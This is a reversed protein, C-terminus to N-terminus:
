TRILGRMPPAMASGPFVCDLAAADLGLHQALLGKAVSRVDATPRLDRNEFLRQQALGPWDGAVRGGAVAGGIVFAVTGTGHDTGLTGNMRVTRGFETVLLVATRSWADGLGAKLAALGQDLPKLAAALRQPQHAHTDWGEAELAALRPGDPAALLRGAAAALAPFAMRNPPQAMGALVAETFGRERLGVAIAPGTLPDPQHMAALQAYFDPDPRQVFPPLWTGVPTPGRLLVPPVVAVSLAAETDPNAPILGAVRNLWGSRSRDSGAVAHVPLAEGLAYMDHLGPLAPHLGFFGGLDLLGGPQGPPPLVLPARLAALDPDGYPTVAALGDLAGRLIVVVLRRDTPASALALSARGLTVASALGLLASRRTLRMRTM